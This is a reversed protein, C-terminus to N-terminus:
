TKRRPPSPPSGAAMSHRWFLRPGLGGPGRAVGMGPLLISHLMAVAGEVKWRGESLSALILEERACLRKVRGGEMWPQALLGSSLLSFGTM